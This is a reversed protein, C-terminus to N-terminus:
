AARRVRVRLGLQQRHEAAHGSADPRTSRRRPRSICAAWSARRRRSPTSRTPWSASRPGPGPHGADGRPDARRRSPCAAFAGVLVGRERDVVVTLHGRSGEITQGKGTKAFDSASRSSTSAPRPPRARGDDRRGGGGSRHVHVQSGIAPGGPRRARGGRAGRDTGRLRGRAHVAAGRGRRRGRVCRRGGSAARRAVAVRARRADGGGGRPGARSSRRRAPRRRGPARSGRGDRRRVAGRDARTWRVVGGAARVGTRVDM